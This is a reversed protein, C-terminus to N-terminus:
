KQENEIVRRLYDMAIKKERKINSEVKSFDTYFIHHIDEEINGICWDGIQLKSFLTDMRSNMNAVGNQNRSFWRFSKNFITAFVCGHFSDTLFLKSNAILWVFESPGCCFSKEDVFNVDEFESYLNIVKLNYELSIKHIFQKVEDSMDGLFYTLLYNEDIKWKPKKAIELWENRDLLLTPDVTVLVERGTLEKIVQAAKEERVSIDKFELVANKFYDVYQEPIYDMGISASFAIRKEPKVFKAFFLDKRNACFNFNWIQDSGCIVYDLKETDLKDIKDIKMRSIYEQDFRRFVLRRKLHIKAPRGFCLLYVGYLKEKLSYARYRYFYSRSISVKEMNLNQLIKNIAYNQLRNGYNLEGTITVIAIKKKM